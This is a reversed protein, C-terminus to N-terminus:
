IFILANKIRKISRLKFCKFACYLVLANSSIRSLVDRFSEILSNLAEDSVSDPPVEVYKESFEDDM